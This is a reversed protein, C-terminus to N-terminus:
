VTSAGDAPPLATVGARRCEEVYTDWVRAKLDDNLDEFRLVKGGQAIPIHSKDFLHNMPYFRSRLKVALQIANPSTVFHGHWWMNPPVIVGVDGIPWDYRVMDGGEPWTLTYGTGEITFVYASPGHRHPRFFRRGPVECVHNSIVSQVTEIYVASTGEGRERFDTRALRLIDPVMLTDYLDVATKVHAADPRYLRAEGPDNVIQPSFRDFDHPSGFIFGTDRYLNYVVSLTNVSVLRAAHTGSGNHLQYACNLPIAFLSREGWEFSIAGHATEITTSGNGRLVYFTEEFLQRVPPTSERAGLEAVYMGALSEAGILDVFVAQLNREPWPRLPLTGLPGAGYGRVIELGLEDEVWREFPTRLDPNVGVITEVLNL